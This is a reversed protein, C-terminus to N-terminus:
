EQAATVCLMRGQVDGVSVFAHGMRADFYVSDGQSMLMPEYLETYFQVTGELIYVFDEADHRDWEDFESLSRARVLAEYPMFAPRRLDSALLRLQYNALEQTQGQGARVISRRGSPTEAKKAELLEPLGMGFGHALKRLASFTPSMQEREIKSLASENM